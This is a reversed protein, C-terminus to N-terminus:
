LEVQESLTLNDDVEIGRRSYLDSIRALTARAGSVKRRTAIRKRRRAAALKAVLTTKEFEPIAGLVQGGGATLM